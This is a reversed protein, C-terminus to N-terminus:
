SMANGSALTRSTTSLSRSRNESAPTSARMRSPVSKSRNPTDHQMLNEENTSSSHQRQENM